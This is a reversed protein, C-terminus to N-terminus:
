IDKLRVSVMRSVGSEQMTIGYLTDVYEMTKKKHTIIIFQTNEEYQKLFSGFNDVNVDDLPAEVEDLLCFPVPRVKLVAFLLSIATLAKEGGSLLSIHQLNKGPPLAIIDIGTELINSPDTLKLEANGGGFLEKFVNVFEKQIKKFTITFNEKMVIDMEKIITNLTNEAKYLDSKQNNLFEYRTNIREYEEVAAINVVGLDKIVEKLEYVKSKAEEYDLLLVYDRKAKEFTMNYEENLIQLLSDLRVERRASSLDMENIMNKFKNLKSNIIKINHELENIENELSDIKTNMISIEKIISDKKSLAEYYLEIIRDEESSLSGNLINKTSNLDNDLSDKKSNYELMNNNKIELMQEFSLRNSRISNYREEVTKIDSEINSLKVEKEKILNNINNLL